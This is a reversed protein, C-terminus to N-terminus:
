NKEEKRVHRNYLRLIALQKEEDSLKMSNVLKDFEKEVKSTDIDQRENLARNKVDLFEAEEYQIKMFRLQDIFVPVDDDSWKEPLKGVLHSAVSELWAGGNRDKDVVRKVFEKVKEDFVWNLVLIDIKKSLAIKTDSISSRSRIGLEWIGIIQEKISPFISAEFNYIEDFISQLRTVYEKSAVVKNSSIPELGL